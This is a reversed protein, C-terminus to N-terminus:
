HPVKLRTLAEKPINDLRRNYVYEEHTLDCNNPVTMETAFGYKQANKMLVRLYTGEDPYGDVCKALAYSFRASTTVVEKSEIEELKQGYKGVAHGGCSGIKKQYWVPLNSVDLSYTNPLTVPALVDALGIDRYDKPSETAGFNYQDFSIEM